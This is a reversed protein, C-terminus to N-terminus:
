IKELGEIHPNLEFTMTANVDMLKPSRSSISMKTNLSKFILDRITITYEKEGLDDDIHKGRSHSNLFHAKFTVKSKLFDRMSMGEPRRIDLSMTAFNDIATEKGAEVQIYENMPKNFLVIEQDNLESTMTVKGALNVNDKIGAKAKISSPRVEFSVLDTEPVFYTNNVTYECAMMSRAVGNDNCYRLTMAIPQVKDPTAQTALIDLLGDYGLTIFKAHETSTGGIMCVRMESEDLIKKYTGHFEGEGHAGEVPVTISLAAALEHYDHNSSVLCYAVRGYTIDSVYVPMVGEMREVNAEKLIGNRPLDISITYAKQMFKILVNTKYKELTSKLDLSGTFEAVDVGVGLHSNFEQEKHVENMEFTTNVSLDPYQAQGDRLQRWDQLLMNYTSLTPNEVERVFIENDNKLFDATSWTIVGTSYEMLQKYKGNAVSNGVLVCGPYMITSMPNLLMYENYTLGQRTTFSRNITVGKVGDNIVDVIGNSTEYPTDPGGPQPFPVYNTSPVMGEAIPLAPLSFAQQNNPDAKDENSCSTISLGSALMFTAALVPTLIKKM